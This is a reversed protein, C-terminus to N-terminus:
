QTNEQIEEHKQQSLRGWFLGLVAGLGIFMVVEVGLVWVKDLGFYGTQPDFRTIWVHFRWAGWMLPGCLAAMLGRTGIARWGAFGGLLTLALALILVLKESQEPSILEQM